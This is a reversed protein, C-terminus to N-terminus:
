VHGFNQLVNCVLFRMMSPRRELFLKQLEKTTVSNIIVFPIDEILTPRM